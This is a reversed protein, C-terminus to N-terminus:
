WLDLPSIAIPGQGLFECPQNAKDGTVGANGEEEGM